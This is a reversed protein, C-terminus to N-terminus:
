EAEDWEIRPKARKGPPYDPGNFSLFALFPAIIYVFTEDACALNQTRMILDLLRRMRAGDCMLRAECWLGVLAEFLEFANEAGQERPLWGIQCVLLALSETIPPVGRHGPPHRRWSVHESERAPDLDFLASRVLPSMGYLLERLGRLTIDPHLMKWLRHTLWKEALAGQPHASIAGVLDFRFKGRPGPKPAGKGTIYHQMINSSQKPGDSQGLSCGPASFEISIASPTKRMYHCVAYAWAMGRLGDLREIRSPLTQVDAKALPLDRWIWNGILHAGDSDDM